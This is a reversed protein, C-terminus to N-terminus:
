REAIQQKYEQQTKHNKVESNKFLSKLEEDRKQDNVYKKIILDLDNPNRGVNHEYIDNM